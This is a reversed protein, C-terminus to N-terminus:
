RPLARIRSAPSRTIADLREREAEGLEPSAALIRELEGQRIPGLSTGTRPNVLETPDFGHRL